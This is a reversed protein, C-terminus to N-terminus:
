FFTRWLNFLFYCNFRLQDNVVVFQFREAAVILTGTYPIWCSGQARLKGIM